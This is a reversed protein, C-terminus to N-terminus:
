STKLTVIIKKVLSAFDDHESPNESYEEFLPYLEEVKPYYNKNPVVGKREINPGVPKAIFDKVSFYAIMDVVTHAIEPDLRAKGLEKEVLSSPTILESLEHALFKKQVEIDPLTAFAISDHWAFGGNLCDVFHVRIEDATWEVHSLQSLRSLVSDAIPSWVSGFKQKYEELRPRTLDWLQDWGNSGQSLFNLFLDIMPERGKWESVVEELYEARMLDRAFAYWSRPSITARQLDHLINKQTLPSNRSAYAKNGLMGSSLEHPLCDAYLVSVHCFENVLWSVELSIRPVL